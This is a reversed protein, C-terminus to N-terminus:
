RVVAQFVGALTGDLRNNSELRSIQQKIAAVNHSRIKSSIPAGNNIATSEATKKVEGEREGSVMEGKEETTDEENVELPYLLNISRRFIKGNSHKVDATRVIGDRGKETEVIRGMKWVGRPIEQELPYLLNIPRRFIKGNSLKVDATRVIGDRGKKIEVIRGM